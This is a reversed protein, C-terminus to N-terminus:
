TTARSSPPPSCDTWADVAGTALLELSGQIAESISIECRAAIERLSRVGDVHFLLSKATEGLKDAPIERGSLVLICKDLPFQGRSDRMGAMSAVAAMQVTPPLSRRTEERAPEQETVVNSEQGVQM